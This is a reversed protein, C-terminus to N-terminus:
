QGSLQELVDDPDVGPPFTFQAAAGRGRGGSGGISLSFGGGGRGQGIGGGRNGLGGLGGGNFNNTMQIPTVPAPGTRREVVKGTKLEPAAILGDSVKKDIIIAPSEGTKEKIE